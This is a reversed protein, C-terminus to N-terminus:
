DTIVQEHPKSNYNSSKLSVTDSSTSSMKQHEYYSDTMQDKAYALSKNQHNLREYDKDKDLNIPNENFREILNSKLKKAKRNDSIDEINNLSTSNLKLKKLSENNIASSSDVGGLSQNKNALKENSLYTFNTSTSNSSSANSALETNKKLNTNNKNGYLDFTNQNQKENFDKHKKQKHM